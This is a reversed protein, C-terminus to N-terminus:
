TGTPCRFERIAPLSFPNQVSGVSIQYTLEQGGVVFTAFIRDGRKVAGASDLMRFLSWAGQRELTSPPRAPQGFGGGEPEVVIATRGGAGPWTVAVPSTRGPKSEVNTGAVEMKVAITPAAPQTPGFSFGGTQQPAQPAGVTPPTVSMMIQPQVGGTAFFVDRIEAARQFNRLMGKNLNTGVPSDARFTWERKSTDTIGALYQQYFKDIVGTGPAFLRGFDGIPVERESGRVFPYRGNVIQNCVPTVQDALAQMIQDATAKSVDGIFENAAGRVMDNFPPPFRAASARLNAVERQLVANAQATQSPNTAALTLNQNIEGLTAILQDVPKRGGDGEVMVQFHKFSAEITAGPARDQQKMLGPPLAAPKGSKDDKEDKKVGPRERTLATEDRISELLTKIQSTAASLAALAIYRPKDATLRKLRLEGLAQRWANQFDRTYIDLLDDVISDYQESVA